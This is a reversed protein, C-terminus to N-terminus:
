RLYLKHAIFNFMLQLVDEWQGPDKQRFLRMTPYWPTDDRETLWRWDSSLRVLTLVPVGLAGALHAVSTDVSVVLDLNAIVAATDIFDTLHPATLTVQDAFGCGPVQDLGFEKQLSVIRVGPRALGAFRALPISRGREVPAHPNGQWVLGILTEGEKRALKEAWHAKLDPQAALYPVPLCASGLTLGLRHPLGLMPTQFDVPGPDQGHTIMRDVGPMEAFLKALAPSVELIVEGGLSKALRVLRVFQISDGLGQEAHILLRKGAFPRGNWDPISGHRRESTFDAAKWRYEYEKFGTAFDGMRLLNIGWNYHAENLDPYADVVKQLQATARAFQGMEAYANGLNNSAIKHSPDAALAQEYYPIARAYDGIRGCAIGLNAAADAFDPKLKIATQFALFAEARRDASTLANGRNYHIDARDPALMVARDFLAIADDLQGSTRMASALLNLTNPNQPEHALAERYLAIAQPIDEGHHAEVARQLIAGVDISAAVAPMM